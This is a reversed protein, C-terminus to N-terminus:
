PQRLDRGHRRLGRGACLPPAARARKGADAREIEALLDEPQRGVKRAWLMFDAPRLRHMDLGEDLSRQFRCLGVRFRRVAEILRAGAEVLHNEARIQVRLDTLM